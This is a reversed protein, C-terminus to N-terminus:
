ISTIDAMTLTIALRLASRQVAECRAPMRREVQHHAGHARGLRPANVQIGDRWVQVEQQSEPRGVEVDLIPTSAGAPRGCARPM